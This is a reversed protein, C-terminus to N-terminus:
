DFDRIGLLRPAERLGAAWGRVSDVTCGTDYSLTSPATAGGSWAVVLLPDDGASGSCESSGDVTRQGAPRYSALAREFAEVQAPTARIARDRHSWHGEERFDHRLQGEGNSAIVLTYGNQGMFGPALAYRIVRLDPGSRPTAACGGALLLLLVAARL